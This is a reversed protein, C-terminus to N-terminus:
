SSPNLCGAVEVDPQLQSISTDRQQLTGRVDELEGHTLQLKSRAELLTTGMQEVERAKEAAQSFQAWM